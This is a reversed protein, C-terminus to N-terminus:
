PQFGPFHFKKIYQSVNNVQNGTSERTEPMNVLKGADRTEVVPPVNVAQLSDEVNEKAALNPSGLSVGSDNDSDAIKTEMTRQALTAATVGGNEALCTTTENIGSSVVDEALMSDNTSEDLTTEEDIGKSEVDTLVSYEAATESSSLQEHTEETLGNILLDTFVPTEADTEDLSPTINEETEKGDLKAVGSIGHELSVSEVVAGFVLKESNEVQSNREEPEPEAEAEEDSSSSSSSSDEGDDHTEDVSTVSNGDAIIDKVFEVDDPKSAASYDEDGAEVKLAAELRGNSTEEMPYHNTSPVSEVSSTFIEGKIALSHNLSWCKRESCSATRLM